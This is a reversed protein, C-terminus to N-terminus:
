VKPSLNATKIVRKVLEVPVDDESDELNYIGVCLSQLTNVTNDPLERYFAYFNNDKLKDEKEQFVVQTNPGHEYGREYTGVLIYKKSIGSLIDRADKLKITEM